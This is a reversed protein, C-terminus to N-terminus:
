NICDCRCGSIENSNTTVSPKNYYTCICGPTTNKNDIPEVFGGKLQKMEDWSLDINSHQEVYNKNTKMIKIIHLHM